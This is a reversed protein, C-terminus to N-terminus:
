WTSPLSDVDHRLYTFSVVLHMVLVDDRELKSDHLVERNKTLKAEIM